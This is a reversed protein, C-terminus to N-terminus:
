PLRVRRELHRVGSAFTVSILLFFLGTM